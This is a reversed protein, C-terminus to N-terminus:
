AAGGGENAARWSRAQDRAQGIQQPSMRGELRLMAEAAATRTRSSGAGNRALLIWKYAEVYNRSAGSGSSYLMGLEYQAEPVGQVASRSFWKMARTSSQRVGGGLKYLIGLGYQAIAHGQEAARTYWRAAELLDQEVGLGRLYLDGLHYQANSSGLAAARRLLKAAEEYNRPVGRGTRYLIGLQTLAGVNGQGALTRYIRAASSYDGRAQAARADSYPDAQLPASMPALLGILLFQVASFLPLPVKWWTGGSTRKDPGAAKSRTEM